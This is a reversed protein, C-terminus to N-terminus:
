NNVILDFTVQINDSFTIEDPLYTAPTSSEAMLSMGRAKHRVDMEQDLGFNAQRSHYQINVISGLEADYANALAAAKQKSNDIANKRAQNIHKDAQSSEYRVQNINEINHSLALDMVDTLKDLKKVTITLDRTATYGVFTRKSSLKSYEFRPQTRVGSAIVEKHKIGLKKLGALLDNVRKDAESKADLAKKRQVSVSLALKAMDPKVKVEGYGNTHILRRDYQDAIALIPVLLSLTILLKKM